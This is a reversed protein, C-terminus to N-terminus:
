RRVKLIRRLWVFQAAGIPMFAGDGRLGGVRIPRGAPLTDAPWVWVPVSYLPRRLFRCKQLVVLTFPCSTVSIIVDVGSRALIECISDVAAAADTANITRDFRCEVLDAIRKGENDRIRAVAWGITVSDEVMRFLLITGIWQSGDHLWQLFSPTPDSATGDRPELMLDNPTLETVIESRPSSRTVRVSFWLSCATGLTVASLADPVGHYLLSMARRTLPRIMQKGEGALEFGFQPLLTLTAATGGLGIIPHNMSMLARMMRIGLGTWRLEPMCFWDFPELCEVTEEGSRYKVRFASLSAFCGRENVAVVTVLNPASRYRWHYYGNGHPRTSWATEVFRQFAPWDCDEIQGIRM